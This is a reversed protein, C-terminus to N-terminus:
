SVKKELNDVRTEVRAVRESLGSITTTQENQKEEIRTVGNKIFTLTTEIETLKHEETKDDAKQNRRYAKAGFYIACISAVASLCTLFVELPTM